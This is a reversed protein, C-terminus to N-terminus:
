LQGRRTLYENFLFEQFKDTKKNMPFIKAQMQLEYMLLQCIFMLTESMLFDVNLFKAVRLVGIRRSNSFLSRAIKGIM